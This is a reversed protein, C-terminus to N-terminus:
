TLDEIYELGMQISYDLLDSSNQDSAGVGPQLHFLFIPQQNLQCHTCTSSVYRLVGLMQVSTKRLVRKNSIFKPHLIFPPHIM